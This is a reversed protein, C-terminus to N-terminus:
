CRPTGNLPRVEVNALKEYYQVIGCHDDELHGANKLATMIELLHATLPLPMDVDHATQMVNSIDKKNISLKGGPKFNRALIMPVKADLVVSGALGGRIAQYVKEPDAGAKIALTLAESVAAITLNVIVQNALKTICGTGIDGVLVASAGMCAFLSHARNFANQSGGVMFALSGDIAKPEGGSVPADLYDVGAALFASGCERTEDPTISSMEVVLAGARIHSLVGGEGLLVKKVINGTPLITLVADCCEAMNGPSTAIAGLESLEDVAQSNLDHVYVTFGGKLLNKAMPKGMIGLGIIGVTM